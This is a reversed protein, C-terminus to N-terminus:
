TWRHSRRARPGPWPAPTRLRVRAWCPPPADPVALERQWQSAVLGTAAAVILAIFALVIVLSTMAVRDGKFRRWATRWVGESRQVGHGPSGDGLPLRPDPKAPGGPAGGQPPAGFASRPPATDASM